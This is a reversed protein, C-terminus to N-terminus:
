PAGSWALRRNCRACAPSPALEPPVPDSREDSMGPAYDVGALSTRLM